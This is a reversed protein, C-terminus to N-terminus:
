INVQGPRCFVHPLYRSWRDGRQDGDCGYLGGHHERCGQRPAGADFILDKTRFYEVLLLLFFAGGTLGLM